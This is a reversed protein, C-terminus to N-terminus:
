INKINDLQRNLDWDEPKRDLVLWNAGGEIWKRRFSQYEKVSEGRDFGFEFGCCPCIEYSPENAKSYPSEKLGNFGCIPCIYKENM